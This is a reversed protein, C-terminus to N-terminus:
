CYPALPSDKATHHWRYTRLLIISAVSDKATRHWRRDKQLYIPMTTTQDKATRHWRLDKATHHWRHTKLLVTGAATRLLITGTTLLSLQNFVQNPRDTPQYIAPKDACDNDPEQNPPLITGAATQIYILVLSILNPPCYPALTPYYSRFLM